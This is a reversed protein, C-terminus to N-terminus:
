PTPFRVSTGAPFTGRRRGQKPNIVELKGSRELERLVGKYHAERFATEAVVFEEIDEVRASQGGFRNVLDSELRQLAVEPGFMVLQDPVTADSFTYGGAPDAKWMAEKMKQLGRLSKTAFFLYYDTHSRENRMEFYRVYRAGAVDRLKAAYLDRIRERRERGSLKVIDRWEPGGFLDDFNEVQDPHALFRNIEEFMFNILVESSQTSRMISAITSMPIGTWGFPDIFAFVPTRPSCNFRVISLYAENFSSGSHVQYTLKPHPGAQALLEEITQRLLAAREEDKEIFHFDVQSPITAAQLLYARLAIIPSGETGDAYIGPGAFGDIFVIRPFGGLSLIPMWADLYRRLIAHKARTHEDLQWTTTKPAAM